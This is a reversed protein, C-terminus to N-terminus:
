SRVARKMNTICCDVDLLELGIARDYTGRVIRELAHGDGRSRDVRDRSRRLTTAPFEDNAIRRYACGFALVQVLKEFAVTNPTRARHCGLHHKTQRPLLVAFFLQWFPEFYYPPGVLM